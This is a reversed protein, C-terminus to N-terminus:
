YTALLINETNIEMLNSWSHSLISKGYDTYFIELPVFNSEYIM